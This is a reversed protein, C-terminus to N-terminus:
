IEKIVETGRNKFNFPFCNILYNVIYSYLFIWLPLTIILLRDGAWFSIGSTFIIYYLLATFGILISLDLYKKNRFSLLIMFLVPIIFFVHINRTAKNMTQMLSGFFVNSIKEPFLLFTPYGNLNDKINNILLHNYLTYNSILEDYMEKNTLHEGKNVFYAWDKKVNNHRNYQAELGQAILYRKLTLSSIESVIVKDYKIKMLTLQIILPSIVLVMFALDIFKKRSFKLLYFIYFCIFIYSPIAFLPKVSSLLAFFLLIGRLFFLSNYKEVNHTIFYIMGSVLFVTTVETLAHYTLAILSFNLAMIFVAFLSLNVKQTTKFVSLYIFNLSALWFIFQIFWLAKFGYISSSLLIILPYLFPRTASFGIESFKFFEKSVLLYEKSDTTSFLLSDISTNLWVAAFLFYFAILVVNLKFIYVQQKKSFFILNYKKIIL